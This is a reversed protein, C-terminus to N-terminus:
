INGVVESTSVAAPVRVAAAPRPPHPRSGPRERKLADAFLLYRNHTVSMAIAAPYYEEYYLRAVAAPDVPQGGSEYRVDMPHGLDAHVIGFKQMKRYIDSNESIRYRGVSAADVV